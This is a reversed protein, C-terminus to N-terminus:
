VTDLQNRDHRRDLMTGAVMVLLMPTAWITVMAYYVNRLVVPSLLAVLHGAVANLQFAACWIPWWRDSRVSLIVLGVLLALDVLFLAPLMYRYSHDFITAVISLIGATVMMGSGWRGEPGGALAAYGCCILMFLNFANQVIM